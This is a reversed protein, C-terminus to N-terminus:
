NGVIKLVLFSHVNVELGEYDTMAHPM